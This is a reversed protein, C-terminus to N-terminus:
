KGPIGSGDPGQRNELLNRERWAICLTLAVPLWFVIWPFDMKELLRDGDVALVVAAFAFLPLAVSGLSSESRWLRVAVAVMLAILLGLGILGGHFLTSVYISHAHDFTHGQSAIQSPADIGAGVLWRWSDMQELVGGWIVPRFSLARRFMASEPDLYWLGLLLAGAILLVTATVGVRLAPRLTGRAAVGVLFAALLGFWVSRTGGLAIAVILILSAALWGARAASHRSAMLSAVAIILAVAYSLASVVPNALRGLGYLRDDEYSPPAFGLEFYLYLSVAASVTASLVLLRLLWDLFSEFTADAAPLGFLFALLLAAIGLSRGVELLDATESWLSTTALYIVLILALVGAPEVTTPRVAGPTAIWGVWALGALYTPFHNVQGKAALFYTVVSLMLSIALVAIFFARTRETYVPITYALRYCSDLPKYWQGHGFEDSRLGSPICHRPLSAPRPAALRTTGFGSANKGSPRGTPLM